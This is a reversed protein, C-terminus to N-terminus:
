SQDGRAKQVMENFAARERLRATQAWAHPRAPSMPRDVRHVEIPPVGATGLLSNVLAFNEQKLHTIEARMRASEEELLRLYRTTTLWRWATTIWSKM